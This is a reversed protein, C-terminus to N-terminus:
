AVFLLLTSYFYHLLSNTVQFSICYLLLPNATINSYGIKECRHCSKFYFIGQSMFLHFSNASDRVCGLKLLLYIFCKGFSLLSPLYYRESMDTLAPLCRPFLETVNMPELAKTNCQINILKEILSHYFSIQPSSVLMWNTRTANVPLDSERSYAGLRDLTRSMGDIAGSINSVKGHSFFTTEDAYQFTKSTVGM